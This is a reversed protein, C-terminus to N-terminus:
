RLFHPTRLDGRTAPSLQGRSLIALQSRTSAARIVARHATLLHEANDVRSCGHSHFRDDDSFLSGQDHRAHLGFLVPCASRSRASRMGSFLAAMWSPLAEITEWGLRRIMRQTPRHGASGSM